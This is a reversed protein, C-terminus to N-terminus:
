LSPEGDRDVGRAFAVPAFIWVFLFVNRLLPREPSGLLAYWGHGLQTTVAIEMVIALVLWIIGVALAHSVGAHDACLRMYVCAMGTIATIVVVSSGEMSFRDLGLHAAAVLAAAGMWTLTALICTTAPHHRVDPPRANSRTLITM